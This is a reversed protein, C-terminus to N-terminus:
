LPKELPEFRAIRFPAFIRPFFLSFRVQIGQMMEITVLFNPAFIKDHPHKWQDTYYQIVCEFNFKSAMAAM